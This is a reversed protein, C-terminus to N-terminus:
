DYLDEGEGDVEQVVPNERSKGKGKGKGGSPRGNGNANGNRSGFALM